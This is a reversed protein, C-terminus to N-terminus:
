LIPKQNNNFRCNTDILTHLNNSKNYDLLKEEAERTMVTSRETSETKQTIMHAVLVAM